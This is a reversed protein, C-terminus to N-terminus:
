EQDPLSHEQAQSRLYQRLPEWIDKPKSSSPLEKAYLELNEKCYVLDKIWHDVRPALTSEWTLAVQCKAMLLAIRVFRGTIGKLQPVYCLLCVQPVCQM